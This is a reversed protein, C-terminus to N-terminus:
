GLRSGLGLGVGLGLWALSLASCALFSRSSFRRLSSFSRSSLRRLSSSARRRRM